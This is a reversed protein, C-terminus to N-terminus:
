TKRSPDLSSGAVDLTTTGGINIIAVEGSDLTQVVLNPNLKAQIRVWADATAADTPCALRAKLYVAKAKEHLETREEFSALDGQKELEAAIKYFHFSVQLLIRAVTEDINTGRFSGLVPQSHKLAILLKMADDHKGQQHLSNGLLSKVLNSCNSLRNISPSQLCLNLQQQEEEFRGLNGLAGSYGFRDLLVREKDDETGIDNAVARRMYKLIVSQPKQFFHAIEGLLSHSIGYQPFLAVAENVKKIAKEMQHVSKRYMKRGEDCLNTAKRRIEPSPFAPYSLNLPKINMPAANEQKELLTCTWRYNGDADTPTKKLVEVFLGNLEVNLLGNLVVIRGAELDDNGVAALFTAM